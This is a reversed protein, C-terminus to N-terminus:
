EVRELATFTREDVEVRANYGLTSLTEILRHAHDYACARPNGAPDLQQQLDEVHEISAPHGVPGLALHTVHAPVDTHGVYTSILEFALGHEPLVTAITLVRGGGTAAYTSHAEVLDGDLRVDLPLEGGMNAVDLVTDRAGACRRQSRSRGKDRQQRIQCGAGPAIGGEEWSKLPVAPSSPSVCASGGSDDRQV